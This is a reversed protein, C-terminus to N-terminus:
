RKGCNRFARKGGNSNSLLQPAPNRRVAGGAAACLSIHMRFLLNQVQAHAEM